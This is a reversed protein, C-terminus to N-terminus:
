SGRKVQFVSSITSLRTREPALPEIRVFWQESLRPETVTGCRDCKGLPVTYDKEAVLFGQAKLDALVAETLVLTVVVTVVETVVAMLQLVMLIVIVETEAMMDVTVLVMSIIITAAEVEAAVLTIYLHVQSLRLM